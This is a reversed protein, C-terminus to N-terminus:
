ASFQAGTKDLYRQSWAFPMRRDPQGPTEDGARMGSLWDILAGLVAGAALCPVVVQGVATIILPDHPLQGLVTTWPVRLFWLKLSLSLGGAAYILAAALALAATAQALLSEAISSPPEAPTTGGEPRPTDAGDVMAVDHRGPGLRRWPDFPRRHHVGPASRAACGRLWWGEHRCSRVAPASSARPSEDIHM